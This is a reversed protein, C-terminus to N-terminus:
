RANARLWEALNRATQEPTAGREPAAPPTEDVAPDDGRVALAVAAAAVVAAVALLTGLLRRRRRPAHRSPAPPLIQTADEGASAGALEAAFAAASTPRYEPLRALARMIAAEVAQPTEPALERVPVIAEEAQKRGLEALNTFTHPPRGTLSEYLVAGLAYVDAAPTVEGGAAQEPALYAATGLIAGAATVRSAEAARAIGFDAIKVTGDERLLLNAPKVDRHVLGAAHAHELGACAQVGVDVAEDAPLTGRTLRAALTEGPVCEMVIFPIGDEEGSDYVAVVNVHSLRAALRAERVFRARVDAEDALEAALVKVAVERDLGTDHGLYVTAMGGGGLPRDLRYRGGALSRAASV